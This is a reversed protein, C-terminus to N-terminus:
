SEALLDLGSKDSFFPEAEALRPLGARTLLQDIRKRRAAEDQPGAVLPKAPASGGQSLGQTFARKFRLVLLRYAGVVVVATIAMAIFVSKWNGSILGFIVLPLCLVFLLCGVAKNAFKKIGGGIANLMVETDFQQTSLILPVVRAVAEVTRMASGPAGALECQEVYGRKLWTLKWGQWAAGHKKVLAFLEPSGWIGATQAALNIYLGESVVSEPPVSAPKLVTLAKLAEPKGKLVNLPLQEVEVQRTKGNGAVITVWARVDRSDKEEGDDESDEDAVSRRVEDVTEPRSESEEDTKDEDQAVLALANGNSTSKQYRSLAENLETTRHIEFDPWAAALLKRYVFWVRPVQYSSTTLNLTLTQRDFDVVAGSDCDGDWEEFPEFQLIWQEFDDPGWMVERQLLAGAWRNAFYRAEGDRVLAFMAPESM